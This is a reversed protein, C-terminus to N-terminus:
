RDETQNFQQQPFPTVLLRVGDLQLPTLIDKLVPYYNDITIEQGRSVDGLEPHTTLFLPPPFEPLYADPIDFAVDVRDLEPHTKLQSPPFVMGGGEPELPHPLPLYPFVKRKEIETPAMAALSEWTVGPALRATPGVPIAKRGGSMRATPDTKGSLEYRAALLETAKKSLAPRARELRQMEKVFEPSGSPAAKNPTPAALSSAATVLVAVAATAGATVGIRTLPSSMDNEDKGPSPLRRPLMRLEPCTTWYITNM